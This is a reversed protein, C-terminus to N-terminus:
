EKSFDSFDYALARDWIQKLSRFTGHRCGVVTLSWPFIVPLTSIHRPPRLNPKDTAAEKTQRHGLLRVM